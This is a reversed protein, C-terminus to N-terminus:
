KARNIQKKAWHQCNFSFINYKPPSIKDAQINRLLKDEDLCKVESCNSASPTEVGTKVIGPGSVTCGNCFFGYDTGNLVLYDHRLLGYQKENGQLPRSCLLTELGLPDVFNVPNNGWM